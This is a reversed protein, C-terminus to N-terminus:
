HVIQPDLAKGAATDAEALNRGAEAIRQQDVADENVAGGPDDVAKGAQQALDLRAAHVEVCEGHNETEDHQQRHQGSREAEELVLSTRINEDKGRSLRNIQSGIRPPKQVSNKPSWRAKWARVNARSIATMVKTR